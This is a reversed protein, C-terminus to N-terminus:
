ESDDYHFYNRLRAGLEGEVSKNYPGLQFWLDQLLHLGQLIREQMEVEKQLREIIQEPTEM